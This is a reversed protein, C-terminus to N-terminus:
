ANPLREITVRKPLKMGLTMKWIPHSNYLVRRTRYDSEIERSCPECVKFQESDRTVLHTQIGELCVFCKGSEHAEKILRQQRASLM